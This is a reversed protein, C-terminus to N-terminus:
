KGTFKRNKEKGNGTFINGTVPLNLPKLNSWKVLNQKFNAPFVASDMLHKSLNKKYVASECYFFEM